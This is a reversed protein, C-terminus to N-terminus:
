VPKLYVKQEIERLDSIELKIAKANEVSVVAYSTAFDLDYQLTLLSLMVAGHTLILVDRGSGIEDRAEKLIWDLASFVRELVNQYCEGGPTKHYRKDSEWRKLEYPYLTEIERWTHGEFLGFNMEELGSVVRVPVHYGAGVIEATTLARTQCSSYIRCFDINEKHLNEYLLEAQRIGNENLPINTTGQVRKAINWDTEGHRAFFIGM